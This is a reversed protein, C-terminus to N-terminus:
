DRLLMKKKRFFKREIMKPEGILIMEEIHDDMSKKVKTFSTSPHLDLRIKGEKLNQRYSFDESMYIIKRPNIFIEKLYYNQGSKFIRIVPILM